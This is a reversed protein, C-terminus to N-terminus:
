PLWIVSIPGPAPNLGIPPPGNAVAAADVDEVNDHRWLASNSGVELSAFLTGDQVGSTLNVQVAWLGSVPKGALPYTFDLGIQINDKMLRCIIKDTPGFREKDDKRMGTADYTGGAPFQLPVSDGAHPYEIEVSAV